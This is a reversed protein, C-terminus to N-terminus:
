NPALLSFPRVPINRFIWFLLIIILLIWIWIAPIFIRPLPRGRLITISKSIFAYGLFPLSLIALPNLRFAALVNGHLLQYLARLSGCGPCYFGTFTKFPCPAYFISKAPDFLYLFVVSILVLGLVLSFILRQDQTISINKSRFKFRM